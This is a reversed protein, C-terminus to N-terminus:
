LWRGTGGLYGLRRGPPRPPRLPARDPPYSFRLVPGATAVDRDSAEHAFSRHPRQFIRVHGPAVDFGDDDALGWVHELAHHHGLKVECVSEASHALRNDAHM